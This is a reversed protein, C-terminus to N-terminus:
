YKKKSAVYLMACLGLTALGCLLLILTTSSKTETVTVFPFDDHSPTLIVSPIVEIEIASPLTLPESGPTPTVPKVDPESIVAEAERKARDEKWKREREAWYEAHHIFPKVPPTEGIPKWEGEELVMEVDEEKRDMLNDGLAVYMVTNTIGRGSSLWQSQDIIRFGKDQDKFVVPVFYVSLHKGDAIVTEQDPPLDLNENNKIYEAAEKFFQPTEYLRAVYFRTAKIGLVLNTPTVSAVAIWDHNEIFETGEKGSLTCAFMIVAVIVYSRAKM